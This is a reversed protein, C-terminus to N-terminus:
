RRSDKSSSSDSKGSADRRPWDDDDDWSPKPMEHGHAKMYREREAKRKELIKKLKGNELKKQDKLANMVTGIVFLFPIAIALAAGWSM